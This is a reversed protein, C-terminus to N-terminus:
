CITIPEVYHSSPDSITGEGWFGRDFPPAFEFRLVGFIYSVQVGDDSLPMYIRLAQLEVDTPTLYKNQCFMPIKSECVARYVRKIRQPRDDSFMDEPHKGTYDSGYAEVSATGVLRYRFQEGADIVDIIQLNRILRPPIEVPDIDRKRPMLRTGRKQDWYALVTGLVPDDRYNYVM